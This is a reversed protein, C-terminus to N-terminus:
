AKRFRIWADEPVAAGSEVEIAKLIGAVVPCGPHAICGDAARHVPNELIRAAAHVPRLPGLREGLRAVMSCGSTINVRIETGTREVEVLTAFGCVGAKIEVRTM